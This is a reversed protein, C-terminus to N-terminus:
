LLRRGVTHQRHHAAIKGAHDPDTVVLKADGAALEEDALEVIADHPDEDAFVPGSVARSASRCGFISPRTPDTTCSLSRRPIASGSRNSCVHISIRCRPKECTGHRTISGNETSSTGSRATFRM